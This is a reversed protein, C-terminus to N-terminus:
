KSLLKELLEHTEQALQSKRRFRSLKKPTYRKEFEEDYVLHNGVFYSGNSSHTRYVCVSKANAKEEISYSGPGLHRGTRNAFTTYQDFRPSRCMRGAFGKKCGLSELLPEGKRTKNISYPGPTREKPSRFQM